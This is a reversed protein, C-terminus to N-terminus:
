IKRYTASIRSSSLPILLHITRVKRLTTKILAPVDNELWNELAEPIHEPLGGGFPVQLVLLGGPKLIRLIQHMVDTPQKLHELVDICFVADQSETAIDSIQGPVMIHVNDMKFRNKKYAVYDQPLNPVDLLNAHEVRSLYPWILGATGCGVDTIATLSEGTFIRHFEYAMEIRQFQSHISCAANLSGVEGIWDTYFKECRKHEYYEAIAKDWQKYIEKRSLHSLPPLGQESLFDDLLRLENHLTERNRRSFPYVSLSFFLRYLENIIRVCTRM